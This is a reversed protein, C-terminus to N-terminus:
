RRACYGFRVALAFNPSLVAHHQNRNARARGSRSLDASRDELIGAAKEETFSQRKRQLGQGERFTRQHRFGTYDMGRGDLCTAFATAPRALRAAHVHSASACWGRAAVM